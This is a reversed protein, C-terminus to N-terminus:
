PIFDPLYPLVGRIVVVDAKAPDFEYIVVEGRGPEDTITAKRRHFPPPVLEPYAEPNQEILEVISMVNRWYRRGTDPDSTYAIKDQMRALARELARRAWFHQAM